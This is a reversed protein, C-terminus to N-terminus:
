AQKRTDDGSILQIAKETETVDCFPETRDAFIQGQEHGKGAVLLVDGKQLRAVAQQIAKRRDGIEEATPAGALVQKRISAPDESRPNDDTVIVHDANLAAIQAMLPRKGADRDGGCGFLCVLKGATHPRLAKLAKELADPTHAYDVYIHAGAKHGAVPQLRGPVGTLTPLIAFIKEVFTRDEIKEHAVLCLACLINDIQFRGALKLVMDYERGAYHLTIKQGEAVIEHAALKITKGQRGFSIITLGRASCIKELAAFEESDANLIAAAGQPLLASFLRFKAQRYAEMDGHYDLHDRTLNSFGAAKLKVGDLRHQHLGHSSAEMALHTIKKTACNQLMEHLKIPDPTTMAGEQSVDSGVLGLTGLSAAKHGLKEWVQRTFHVTSTKGNTGTVAVIEEPQAEYFRAAAHALKERVNGSDIIAAAGKAKAEAIYEPKFAFFADGKRVNRSDASIGSIEIDQTPTENLLASLM